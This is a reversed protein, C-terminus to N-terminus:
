LDVLSNAWHPFRIDDLDREFTDAEAAARRMSPHARPRRAESRMLSGRGAQLVDGGKDSDHDPRGAASESPPETSAQDGCVKTERVEKIFIEPAHAAKPWSWRAYYNDFLPTGVVWLAGLRTDKDIPVLAPMCLQRMSMLQRLDKGHLAPGFDLGRNDHLHQFVQGWAGAAAFSGASADELSGVLSPADADLTHESRNHRSPHTLPSTRPRQMPHAWGPLAVKMVYSAPPITAEFSGLQIKLPPLEDLNSCDLKVNLTKIVTTLVKSPGAIINSGTDIIATCPGDHCFKLPQSHSENAQEHDEQAASERRGSAGASAALEPEHDGDSGLSGTSRPVDMGEGLVEGEGAYKARVFGSFFDQQAQSILARADGRDM